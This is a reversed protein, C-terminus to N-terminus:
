WSDENSFGGFRFTIGAIPSSFDANELGPLQTIGNIWRYGGTLGIKMWTTINVEIGAEPTLAFIRDSDAAPGDGRLEAKGWGIRASSYFHVLKGPSTVYGLWFGSHKLRLDYTNNDLQFNAFNAGIGYGGLFLNELTLAGGGGATTGSQGNISSFEVIPAGFAGTVDLDSFLTEEQGQLFQAFIMLIALIGSIKRM